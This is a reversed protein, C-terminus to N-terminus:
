PAEPPLRRNQLSYSDLLDIAPGLQGIISLAAVTWASVSVVTVIFTNHIVSTILRIVLWALALKAAVAILYSRSPWTVHSMIVRSTIMEIAFIATSASLVMVRVFHRLPMPWLMAWPSM